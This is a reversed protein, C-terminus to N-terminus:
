RRIALRSQSSAHPRTDVGRVCHSHYLCLCDTRSSGFSETYLSIDKGTTAKAQM